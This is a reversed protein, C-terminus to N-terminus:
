WRLLGEGVCVSAGGVHVRTVADSSAAEVRVHLRSPRGMKVGQVSIIRDARSVPVLGHRVLYAGLPGTASGTAPDEAVGAAPAFMRSYAAVGPEAPEASFVFVGVHNGEFASRLARMAAADPDCDDVAVRTALPVYFFAAGCSGEVVPLGTATWADRPAGVARVVDEAPVLAERFEPRGQDMWARQLVDGQWELAVPTPGVNLGFVWRDRRPEIVGAHTLAFTSGVTPHGAMPMERGPTFIRMRIDTESSEAPLIFTSEAFNMEQALKQMEGTSLGRADLFVALQNGEFPRTTFVDYHAYRLTPM